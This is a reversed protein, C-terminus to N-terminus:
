ANSHFVASIAVPWQNDCLQELGLRCVEAVCTNLLQDWPIVFTEIRHRIHQFIASCKSYRNCYNNGQFKTKNRYVAVPFSAKHILRTSPSSYLNHLEEYHLKRWEGTVEDRKPGFTKRLVRDVFVRLRHEERLTLYWTECGYLIVPLTITKNLRM